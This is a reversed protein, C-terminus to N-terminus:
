LSQIYWIFFGIMTTAFLMVATKIWSTLTDIKQILNAMRETLTADTIELRVLREEVDTLRRDLEQGKPCNDKCNNNAKM